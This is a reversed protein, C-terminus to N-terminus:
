HFPPVEVSTAKCHQSRAIGPEKSTEALLYSWLFWPNLDGFWWDLGFKPARHRMRSSAGAPAATLGFIRRLIMENSPMALSICSAQPSCLSTCVRSGNNKPPVEIKGNPTDKFPSVCCFIHVCLFCAPLLRLAMEHKCDGRSRIGGVM